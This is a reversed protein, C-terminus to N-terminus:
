NIQRTIKPYFLGFKELSETSEPALNEVAIPTNVCMGTMYPCEPKDRVFFKKCTVCWYHNSESISGEPSSNIKNRIM